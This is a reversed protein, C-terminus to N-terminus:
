IFHLSDYMLVALSKSERMSRMTALVFFPFLHANRRHSNDTNVSNGDPNNGANIRVPRLTLTANQVDEPRARTDFVSRRKGERGLDELCAYCKRADAIRRQEPRFFFIWRM